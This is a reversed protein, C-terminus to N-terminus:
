PTACVDGHAPSSQESFAQEQCVTLVRGRPQTGFYRLIRRETAPCNRVLDCQARDRSQLPDVYCWGSEEGFAADGRQCAGLAAGTLPRIECVCPGAKVVEPTLAEQPPRVRGLVAPDNCNCTTGEKPTFAEMLICPVSGDAGIELARPLCRGHLVVRLRDLLTNMVPRYGFDAATPDKTNPPCISAVIGQEGIGKLVQLERIGPYAKAKFQM